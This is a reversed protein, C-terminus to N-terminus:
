ADIDFAPIENKGVRLNDLYVAWRKMMRHREPLHQTRNYARGNPDRVTHALQHEILDYREGLVEDLLTRAMARFGHPTMEDGAIGMGRLAVMLATKSMPKGKRFLHPFVWEQQGTYGYLMKLIKMVQPALPVIHPTNTKGATYRWECVEFDIDEWRAHQLEGPRVFVYPAIKIACSVVLSGPFADIARMLRGVEMPDTMTAYHTIKHTRLCGRLSPLPDIEAFGSAVAYRMVMGCVIAIRRASYVKGMDEIERLLKLFDPGRLQAVPRKGLVPFVYRNLVREYLTLTKPSIKSSHIKLWERALVEFTNCAGKARELKEEQRAAGPDIGLAKQSRAEDRMRRAQELSVAPYSGFSLLSEKGDNKRYKMKWHKGGSPNVQLFLGGGDFLKYMKEKPKANSVQTATLPKILRAM